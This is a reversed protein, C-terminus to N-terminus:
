TADAESNTIEVPRTAGVWKRIRRFNLGNYTTYPLPSCIFLILSFLFNEKKRMARM